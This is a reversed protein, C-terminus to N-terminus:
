PQARSLHWGHMTTNFLDQANQFAAQHMQEADLGISRAFTAAKVPGDSDFDNFHEKLLKFAEEGSEVITNCSSRSTTRM